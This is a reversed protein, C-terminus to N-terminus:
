RGQADAPGVVTARAWRYGEVHVPVSGRFSYDRPWVAAAGVATEVIVLAVAVAFGFAVTTRPPAEPTEVPIHPHGSAM